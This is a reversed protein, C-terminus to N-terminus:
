IQQVSAWAGSSLRCRVLSVVFKIWWGVKSNFRIYWNIGIDEELYKVRFGKLMKNPTKKDPKVPRVEVAPYNEFDKYLDLAESFTLRLFMTFTHFGISSLRRPYKIGQYEHFM